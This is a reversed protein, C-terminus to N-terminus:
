YIGLIQKELSMVKSEFGGKIKCSDQSIEVANHLAEEKGKGLLYNHILIADFLDGAGITHFYKIENGKVSYSNWSAGQPGQKIIDCPYMNSEIHNGIKVINRVFNMNKIINPRPGVDIFIQKWNDNVVENISNDNIETTLIVVNKEEYKKYDIKLDNVGRFIKSVKDDKSIFIGTYGKKVHIHKVSLKYSKLKKIIIKGRNDNGINGHLRVKHGLIHLGLAINLGSGGISEIVQFKDKEKYKYVDIFIGGFIDIQLTSIGKISFISNFRLSNM